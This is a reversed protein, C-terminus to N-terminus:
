GCNGGNGMERPPVAGYFEFMCEISTGSSTAEAKPASSAASAAIRPSLKSRNSGATRSRTSSRKSAERRRCVATLWSTIAPRAFSSGAAM